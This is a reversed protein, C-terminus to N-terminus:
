TNEPPEGARKRLDYDTLLAEAMAIRKVAEDGDFPNRLAQMATRPDLEDEHTELLDLLEEADAERLRRGLLDEKSTEDGDSRAAASM